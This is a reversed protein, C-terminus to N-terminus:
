QVVGLLRQRQGVLLALDVQPLAPQVLQELDEADLARHPPDAAAIHAAVGAPGVVGVAVPPDGGGPAGLLGGHEVVQGGIAAQHREQALLQVVGVGGGAAAALAAGAV